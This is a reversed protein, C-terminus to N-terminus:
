IKEIVVQHLSTPISFFLLPLVRFHYIQDQFAFRLFQRHQPTIPVHFYADKLYITSFWHQQRVAQLVDTVRLIRFPLRKLFKNLSRLELIPRVGDDKKSNHLISLLVWRAMRVVKSTRHCGERPTTSNRVKLFKRQQSRFSHDDQGLQFLSAATQVAAQVRSNFNSYGM